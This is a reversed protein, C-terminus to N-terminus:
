FGLTWGVAYVQDNRRDLPLKGTAYSLNFRYPLDLRAVFYDSKDLRAARVATSSGLEHFHRFAATVYLTDAGYQMVPTKFGVEVRVRAYTDRDPDVALRADNQSPDVLDLGAVLSPFTRGSPQFEERGILSRLAAFPYDFVNFWGLDSRARWDRFAVSLKGGYTWQRNDFQQDTEYTGHAQVDYFLHPRMHATFEKVATQYATRDGGAAAQITRQLNAASEPTPTYGPEIGGLGQFFHFAGGAEILNNPNKRAELAVDGQAELSLAIGAPHRSDENLVHSALAKAYEFEVGFTANNSSGTAQFLKPRLHWDTLFALFQNNTERPDYIRQLLPGSVRQFVDEQSLGKVIISPVKALPVRAAVTAPGNTDGGRSSGALVLLLFLPLLRLAAAHLRLVAPQM